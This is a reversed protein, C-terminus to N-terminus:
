NTQADDSEDDFIRYAEFEQVDEVTANPNTRQLMVLNLAELVEADINGSRIQRFVEGFAVGSVRQITKVERIKLTDIDLTKSAAM